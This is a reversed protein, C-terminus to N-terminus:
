GRARGPATHARVVDYIASSMLESTYRAEVSRRGAAGMEAARAPDSLLALINAALAPADAPTSLLGTEGDSIYDDMGPTRTAVVARGSAMAELSVTMGSVHLNPRTAIAVLSASAYLDRLESHPLHRITTVADPPTKESATQVVLEVDPRQAHVLALAAFLTDADRDRDGGVSVVRPTTPTPQPTFFEHDIGFRVYEVPVGPVIDRLPQLQADSLVWLADCQALVAPLRGLERGRAAADTLWIVGSVHRRHPRMTSMRLAANEDWTVGVSDRAARPRVGFRARAREIRGPNPLDVASVHAFSSLGDLGYPWRGPVDGAAHRKEWDAISREAPFGVDVSMGQESM